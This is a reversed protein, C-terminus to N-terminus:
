WRCTLEMSYKKSGSERINLETIQFARNMIKKTIMNLEKIDLKFYSVTIKNGTKKFSKLKDKAVISKL